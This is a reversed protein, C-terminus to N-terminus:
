SNWVGAGKRKSLRLDILQVARNQRIRVRRDPNRIYARKQRKFEISHFHHKAM